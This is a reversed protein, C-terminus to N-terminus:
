PSMGARSYVTTRSGQQGGGTLTTTVTLTGDPGLRVTETFTLVLGMGFMHRTQTGESVLTGGSWKSHRSILIDDERDVVEAGNFLYTTTHTKGAATRHVVLREASQKITMVIDGSKWRGSFDPRTQVALSVSILALAIGIRVLTM